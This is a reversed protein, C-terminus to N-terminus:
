CRLFFLVHLLIISDFNLFFSTHIYKSYNKKRVIQIDYSCPILCNYRLPSNFYQYAKQFNLLRDFFTVFVRLTFTDRM